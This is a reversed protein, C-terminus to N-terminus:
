ALLAALINRHVLIKDGLIAGQRNLVQPLRLREPSCPSPCLITTKFLFRLIINDQLRSMERQCFAPNPTGDQRPLYPRSWRHFSIREQQHTGCNVPASLHSCAFASYLLWWYYWIFLWGLQAM